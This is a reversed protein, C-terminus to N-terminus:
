RRTEARTALEDLEDVVRECDCPLPERGDRARGPDETMEPGRDHQVFV